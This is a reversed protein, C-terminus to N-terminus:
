LFISNEVMLVTRTMDDVTAIMDFEQNIRHISSSILVRAKVIIIRLLDLEWAILSDAIFYKRM